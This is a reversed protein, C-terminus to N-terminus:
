YLSAHRARCLGDDLAAVSATLPLTIAAAEYGKASDARVFVGNGAWTRVQAAGTARAIV